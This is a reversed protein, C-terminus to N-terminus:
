AHVAPAAEAVEEKSAVPADVFDESAKEDVSLQKMQYAPATEELPAVAAAKESSVAAGKVSGEPSTEVATQEGDGQGPVTAGRIVAESLGCRDNGYKRWRELNAAKREMCLQHLAM